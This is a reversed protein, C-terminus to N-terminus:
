VSDQFKALPESADTIRFRYCKGSIKNIANTLQEPDVAPIVYEKRNRHFMLVSLGVGIVFSFFMNAEPKKLVDALSVFMM